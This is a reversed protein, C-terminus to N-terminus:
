PLNQFILIGEGVVGVEIPKSVDIQGKKLTSDSIRVNNSRDVTYTALGNLSDHKRLMIGKEHKYATLKSQTKVNLIRTHSVPICLRSRADLDLKKSNPLQLKSDKLKSDQSKPTDYKVPEFDFTSLDENVPGYVIATFNDTPHSALGFKYGLLKMCDKMIAHVVVRVDKNFVKFDHKDKRLLLTINYSTFIKSNDILNDLIKRVETELKNNDIEKLKSM